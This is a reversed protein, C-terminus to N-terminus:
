ILKKKSFLTAITKGHLRLKQLASKAQIRGSECTPFELFEYGELPASVRRIGIKPDSISPSGKIISIELM